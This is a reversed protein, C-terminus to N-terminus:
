ESTGGYVSWGDIYSSVTNTHQRANAPDTATGPAAADRAFAISGLDNRFTELPDASDFAIPSREKSEEALGFTHDMFQGWTWTWQSVNRESFINQGGDGFVRNSVYRANPGGTPAGVGDAYNPPALRSYPSGAQGWAPHERNNGSGDLSRAEFPVAARAATAGGYVACLMLVALVQGGRRM